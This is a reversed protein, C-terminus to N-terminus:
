NTYPNLKADVWIVSRMVAQIGITLLITETILGEPLTDTSYRWIGYFGLLATFFLRLLNPSNRLKLAVYCELFKFFVTFWGWHPVLLVTAFTWSIMEVSSCAHVIMPFHYSVFLGFLGTFVDKTTDPWPECSGVHTLGQCVFVQEVVEFSLIVILAMKVIEVQLRRDPWLLVSMVSSGWHVYDWKDFFLTTDYTYLSTRLESIIGPLQNQIFYIVTVGALGQLAILLWRLYTFTVEKPTSPLPPNRSRKTETM